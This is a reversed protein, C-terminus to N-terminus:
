KVAEERRRNHETAHRRRAEKYRDFEREEAAEQAFQEQEAFLQPYADWPQLISQPDKKETFIYAVRSGIAEALVFLQEIEKIQQQRIKRQYSKIRDEIEAPTYSWFAEPIIGCDLADPYM